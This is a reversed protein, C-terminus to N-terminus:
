IHQLSLLDRSSLWSVRAALIFAMVLNVVVGFILLVVFLLFVIVMVLIIIWNKRQQNKPIMQVFLGFLSEFLWFFTAYKLIDTKFEGLKFDGVKWDYRTLLNKLRLLLLTEAIYFVVFLLLMVWFLILYLNDNKTSNANNIGFWVAMVIMGIVFVTYVLIANAYSSIRKILRLIQRKTLEQCKIKNPQQNVKKIKSLISM